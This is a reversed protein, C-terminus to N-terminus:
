LGSAGVAETALRVANFYLVYITKCYLLSFSWSIFHLSPISSECAYATARLQIHWRRWRTALKPWRTAGGHSWLIAQRWLNAPVSGTDNRLQDTWRTRPHGPRRRWDEGLSRGSALGVQCHLANHAPTGQTLRAIHGFVSLCRRRILDMVPPLGTRASIETNTVHQSWHIHLIQSFIVTPYLEVWTFTYLTYMPCWASGAYSSLMYIFTWLFNVQEYNAIELTMKINFDFSVYMFVYTFSRSVITWANEPPSNVQTPHYTIGYRRHRRFVKYTWTKRCQSVLNEM